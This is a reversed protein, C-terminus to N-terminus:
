VAWVKPIKEFALLQFKELRFYHARLADDDSM